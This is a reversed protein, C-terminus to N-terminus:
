NKGDDEDKFIFMIEDKNLLRLKKRAQEQIYDKSNINKLEKTLRSQEEKLEQQQQKLARNEAKLRIIKRGYTVGIVLIFVALLAAIRKQKANLRISGKKGKESQKKERGSMNAEKYEAKLM